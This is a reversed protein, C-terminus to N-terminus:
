PTTISRSSFPTWNFESIEFEARGIVLSLLNTAYEIWYPFGDPAAKEEIYSMIVDGMMGIMYLLTVDESDDVFLAGVSGDNKDLLLYLAVAAQYLTQKKMHLFASTLRSMVIAMLDENDLDFIADNVNTSISEVFKKYLTM